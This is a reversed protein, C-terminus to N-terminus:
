TKLTVYDEGEDSKRDVLGFFMEPIWQKTTFWLIAFLAFRRMNKKILCNLRVCGRGRVKTQVDTLEKKCRALGHYWLKIM